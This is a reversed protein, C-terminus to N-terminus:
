PKLTLHRSTKLPQKCSRTRIVAHQAISRVVLMSPVYGDDCTSGIPFGIKCVPNQLLWPSILCSSKSKMSTGQLFPYCCFVELMTSCFTNCPVGHIVM